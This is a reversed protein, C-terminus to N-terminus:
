LPILPAQCAQFFFFPHSCAPLFVFTSLLGHTRPHVAQQLSEPHSSPPPPPPFIWLLRLFPPRPLQFITLLQTTQTLMPRLDCPNAPSPRQWPSSLFARTLALPPRLKGVEPSCPLPRISVVINPLTFPPPNHVSTPLFSVLFPFFVLRPFTMKLHLPNCPM